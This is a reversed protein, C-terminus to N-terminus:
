SYLKQPLPHQIGATIACEVLDPYFPRAPDRRTCGKMKRRYVGTLNAQRMLRAVRKKSYSIDDAITLEAYISPAGYTGRSKRHVEMIRPTLEADQRTRHSPLRRRWTYYGSTSVGLVRCM